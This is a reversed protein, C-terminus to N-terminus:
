SKCGATRCTSRGPVTFGCGYYLALIVRDRWGYPNDECAEYMAHSRPNVLSQGKSNTLSKTVKLKKSMVPSQGYLERYQNLLKLASIHAEITKGAIPRKTYTRM